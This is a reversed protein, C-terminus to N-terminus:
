SDDRVTADVFVVDAPVLHRTGAQPHRRLDAQSVALSVAHEDSDVDAVVTVPVMLDHKGSLSSREVLMWGTAPDYRTVRGLGAGESTYVDDGTAIRERLQDIRARDVVVPSGDYGSPETTIARSDDEGTDPDTERILVTDRPPPSAYERHLEDGSKSVFVERPDIHTIISFPVYLLRSSLPNTRVMMYGTVRDFADVAGVRGGDIDFVDLGYDMYQRIDLTITGEDHTM